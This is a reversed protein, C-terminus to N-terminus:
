DFDTRSAQFVEIDELFSLSFAAAAKAWAFAFAAASLAAPPFQTFIDAQAGGIVQAKTPKPTGVVNKHCARASLFAFITGVLRPPYWPVCRGLVNQKHGASTQFCSIPRM